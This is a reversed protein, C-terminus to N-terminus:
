VSGGREVAARVRVEVAGIRRKVMALSVGTIAAIDELQEGEVHRLSWAVREEVPLRALLTDILALETRVEPSADTTALDFLGGEEDPALGFFRLFKRSRLRRQVRHVAIGLLWSRLRRPDDLRDLKTFAAGFTEQVVDDAEGTHGLMRTAMGLVAEVHRRFIAEHAWRDGQRARAVLEEDPVERRAPAPAGDRPRLSRAMRLSAM